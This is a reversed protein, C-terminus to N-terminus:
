NLKIEGVKFRRLAIGHLQCFNQLEKVREESINNTTIVLRVFHYKAFIEELNEGRGLVRLGNLRLGQLAKDDDVVGIVNWTKQEYRHYLSSLYLRCNLGGGYLLVKQMGELGSKRIFMSRLMFSEAYRLLYREGGILVLVLLFYTLFPTYFYRVYETAYYYSYFGFALACGVFIVEALFWYDSINARLWYIRYVGSLLLALFVPMICGTSLFMDRWKGPFSFAIIVYAFTIVALDFFPHLLFIMLSRRPRPVGFLIFRASQYLEINAFRKVVIFVTILLIAYSFAPVRMTQGIFTIVLAVVAFAFAICYMYLATKKQDHFKDLFRHHLHERDPTMIGNQQPDCLKRMLRRWFALFVDFVPVGVALLPVLVSTLTVSTNMFQLGAYAFVLGLFMSGTDGIFIRAPTFNYRLFGLCAGALILMMVMSVIDKNLLAWSALCLSAVIALGSSLGDLGDILNFANILAVVWFVTVLLSFVIPLEWGFVEMIRVRCSWLIVGAAVQMVLKLLASLMFRDDLIGIVFILLSPYLLYLMRQMSDDPAFWYTYAFLGCFFSIIVAIGGGRPIPNHHIKRPDPLDIFGLRPLWAICLRTLFM